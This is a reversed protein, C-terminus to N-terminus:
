RMEKVQQQKKVRMILLSRGRMIMMILVTKDEEKKGGNAMQRVSYQVQLPFVTSSKDVKCTTLLDHNTM